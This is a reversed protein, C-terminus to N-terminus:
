AKHKLIARVMYFYFYYSSKIINFGLYARYFQWQSTLIKMKNSSLSNHGERYYALVGDVCRAYDIRELIKLWLAMDQRKRITPMYIKGFVSTDYVATLCGIVNSKLLEHYSVKEPPIIIKGLKYDNGIKQYRSYSLVVANKQMFDIQKTLKSDVWLDDSDLFAIYRGKSVAISNNRSVGAGQNRENIFLKIRPDLQALEKVIDTTDDTSCDDTILLEWNTYSQRQVSEISARITASSNYSPMIVSVLSAAKTTMETM